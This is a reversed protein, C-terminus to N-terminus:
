KSKKLKYDGTFLATEILKFFEEETLNKNMKALDFARSLWFLKFDKIVMNPTEWTNGDAKTTYTPRIIFSGYNYGEIVNDWHSELAVDTIRDRADPQGFSNFGYDALLDVFKDSWARPINYLKVDDLQVKEVNFNKLNISTNTDEVDEKIQTNANRTLQSKVASPSKHRAKINSM